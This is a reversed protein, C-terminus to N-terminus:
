RRGVSYIVKRDEGRSVDRRRAVGGPNKKSVASSRIRDATRRIRGILFGAAQSLVRRVTHFIFLFPVAAMHAAARLLLRLGYAIRDLLVRVAKGPLIAYVYFGAFSSFFTYARFKGGCLAYTMVAFVVAACLSFILDSFFVAVVRLFRPIHAFREAKENSTRRMKVSKPVPVAGSVIGFFRLVDYIAGFVIGALFFFLVARLQDPIYSKM